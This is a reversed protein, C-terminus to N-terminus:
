NPEEKVHIIMQQIVDNVNRTKIIIEPHKRSFVRFIEDAFGQGIFKVGQFDLNIEKFKDLGYLLRRAESRSVYNELFLKVAVKTRNFKFDFEEPAYTTFIDTLNKKTNKSISFKVETGQIRKKEELFMDKSKNDFILKIKHSRITMIDAAKSTFFIGEGSHREKITTTKGKILEGIAMNENDLDFKKYISYFIGIGFDRITFQFDYNDLLLEVVCKQSESHEIANNLIETFAYEIIKYAKENVLKSLKSLLSIEHFVKDEELNFLSYEKKFSYLKTKIKNDSTQIAYIASKTKGIKIILSKSILEKLHKNLAQRSIGLLAGLEKSSATKHEKLFELIKEKQGM